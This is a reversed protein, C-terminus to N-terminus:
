DTICDRYIERQRYIYRYGKRGRQIYGERERVSEVLRAYCIGCLYTRVHICVSTSMGMSTNMTVLAGRFRPSEQPVIMGAAYALVHIDLCTHLAQSSHPRPHINALTCILGIQSNQYRTPYSPRLGPDMRQVVYVTYTTCHEVYLTRCVTYSACQVTRPVNYTSPFCRVEELVYALSNILLYDGLTVYICYVWM